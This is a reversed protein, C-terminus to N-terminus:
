YTGRKYQFIGLGFSNSQKGAEFLGLIYIYIYLYIYINIYIHVLVDHILHLLLNCSSKAIKLFQIKNTPISEEILNLMALVSNVPTRMDHTITAMLMGKYKNRNKSEELDRMLSMDKIIILWCNGQEFFIYKKTVSLVKNALTSVVEEEEENNVSEIPNLHM